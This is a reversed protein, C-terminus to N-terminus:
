ARGSERRRRTADGSGLRQGGDGGDGEGGEDRLQEAELVALREEPVLRALQVAVDGEEPAALLGGRADNAGDRLVDAAATSASRSTSERWVRVGDQAGGHEVEGVGKAEAAASDPHGRRGTIIVVAQEVEYMLQRFILM